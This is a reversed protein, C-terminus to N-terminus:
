NIKLGYVTEIEVHGGFGGSLSGLLGAFGLLVDGLVVLLPGLFPFFGVGDVDVLHQLLDVGVGSDGGLGHADHVGEDVIQKLLNSGLGAAQSVVVLLGGDGGPLDLSGHPEKKGPLQGLVSDGLAGLGHGLVGGGAALLEQPQCSVLPVKISTLWKWNKHEQFLVETGSM